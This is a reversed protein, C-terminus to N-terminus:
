YSRGGGNNNGHRGNVLNNWDTAIRSYDAGSKGSQTKNAAVKAVMVNFNNTNAIPTVHIITFNFQDDPTVGMVMMMVKQWDLELSALGRNHQESKINMIPKGNDSLKCLPKFTDDFEKSRGYLGTSNYSGGAVSIMNIRGNPGQNNGKGRYYVNKGNQTMFYVKVALDSLGAGSRSLAPMFMVNDVETIHLNDRFREVLAKGMEDTTTAYIKGILTMPILPNLGQAGSVKTAGDTTATSSM